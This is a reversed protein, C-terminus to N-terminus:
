AVFPEVNGGGALDSPRTASPSQAVEAAKLLKAADYNFTAYAVQYPTHVDEDEAFVNANKAVLVEIAGVNGSMAAYHLARSGSIHVAEIDADMAILKTIEEKSGGDRAVKMLLTLGSDNLPARIGGNAICGVEDISMNLM